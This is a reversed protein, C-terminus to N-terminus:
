QRIGRKEMINRLAILSTQWMQCYWHRENPDQLGQHQLHLSCRKPGCRLKIQALSRSAGGVRITEWLYTIEDSKTRICSGYFRKMVVGALVADIWFSNSTKTDPRCELREIGPMMLWVDMYEPITLANLISRWEAQIAVSVRVDVGKEGGRTALERGTILTGNAQPIM